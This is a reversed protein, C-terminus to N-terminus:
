APRRRSLRAPSEQRASDDPQLAARDRRFQRAGGAPRRLAGGDRAQTKFYQEPTFRRPRRADALSTAKPSASARKTRASIRARRPVPGSADRRRAARAARRAGGDGAGAGRRRRPGRAAGRPLLADPFRTAWDRPSASPPADANGQLLAQGVDGDRAGSLAIIGDTGTTSGRATSNRVAAISTAHSLRAFALRVPAPLRRANRCAAARAFPQDRESDNAIWVDCGAIPKVGRARAATYFKILGFQNALDTLALAPM